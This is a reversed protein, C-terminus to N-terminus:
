EANEEPTVDILTEAFLEDPKMGLQRAQEILQERSMAAGAPLNGSLEIAKLRPLTRDLLATAAKLQTNSLKTRGLVHSQLKNLIKSTQISDIHKTRQRKTLPAAM